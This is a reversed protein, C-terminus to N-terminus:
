VKVIDLPQCLVDSCRTSERGTVILVVSDGHVLVYKDLNAKSLPHRCASFSLLLYTCRSLTRTNGSSLLGM